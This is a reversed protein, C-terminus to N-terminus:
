LVVGALLAPIIRHTAIALTVVLAAPLLSLWNTQIDKHRLFDQDIPALSLGLALLGLCLAAKLINKTM